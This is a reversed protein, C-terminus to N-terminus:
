RVRDALFWGSEGSVTFSLCSLANRGTGYKGGERDKSDEEKKGRQESFQM